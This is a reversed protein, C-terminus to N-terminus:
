QAQLTTGQNELIQKHVRHLVKENPNSQLIRVQTM